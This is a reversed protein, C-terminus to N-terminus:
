ATLPAILVLTRDEISELAYGTAWLALLPAFPDPLEAFRRGVLAPPFPLLVSRLAASDPPVVRDEAVAAKWARAGAVQDEVLRTVDSGVRDRLSTPLCAPGWRPADFSDGIEIFRAGGSALHAAEHPRLASDRSVEWARPSVCRWLFRPELTRRPLRVGAFRKLARDLRKRPLRALTIPWLALREAVVGALAEAAAAGEPDSALALCAAVTPPTARHDRDGWSRERLPDRLFRREKGNDWHPPVLGAGRLASWARRPDEVGELVARAEHARAHRPQLIRAALAELDDGGIPPVCRM